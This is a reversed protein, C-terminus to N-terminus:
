QPGDFMLDFPQLGVQQITRLVTQSALDIVSVTTDQSNSVYLKTVTPDVASFFPGRGVTLTNVVAHTGTDIISVSQSGSNSV